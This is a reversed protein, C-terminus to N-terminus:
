CCLRGRAESAGDPSTGNPAWDPYAELLKEGLMVADYKGQESSRALDNFM